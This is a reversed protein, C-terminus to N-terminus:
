RGTARGGAADEAEEMGAAGSVGEGDGIEEAVRYGIRNRVLRRVVFLDALGRWLRNHIGYKTEGARRPRHRVPREVTTYGQIKLLTPLFRHMGEFRPVRVLGARPMIRLSCGVDTVRDDTFRNRVGNAIRSSLRRVWSDHRERRVGSAVDAEGRAVSEWLRALDAPDNQGDADLTAIWEGRAAEAGAIVATSQGYNRDLRVVRVRDDGAAIRALIAPSEDTSGDDVYVAEWPEGISELAAVLEAHLPELNAAEDKVPLVASIRPADTM